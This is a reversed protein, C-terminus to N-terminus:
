NTTLLSSTSIPLKDPTSRTRKRIKFKNAAQAWHPFKKATQERTVSYGSPIAGTWGELFQAHVNGEARDGSVHDYSHGSAAVITRQVSLIGITKDFRFTGATSAATQCLAPPLWHSIRCNIVRVPPHILSGNIKGEIVAKLRPSNM